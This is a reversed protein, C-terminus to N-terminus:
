IRWGDLWGRGHKKGGTIEGATRRERKWEDVVDARTRAAGDEVQIRGKQTRDTNLANDEISM